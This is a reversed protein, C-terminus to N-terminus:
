GGPSRPKSSASMEAQSQLLVLVDRNAPTQLRTAAIIAWNTMQYDSRGRGSVSVPRPAVKKFHEPPV